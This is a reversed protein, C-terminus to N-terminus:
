NARVYIYKSYWEVVEQLLAREVRNVISALIVSGGSSGLCEREERLFVAMTQFREIRRDLDLIPVLSATGAAMIPFVLALFRAALETKPHQALWNLELSLYLLSMLLAAGSFAFFLGELVKLKWKAGAEKSEYFRIQVDIRTRAYEQAFAEPSMRNAASAQLHLVDLSQILPELEPLVLARFYGPPAQFGRLALISRCMEATMRATAWRRQPMFKMICIPLSFGAFLIIIKVGTLWPKHVGYTISYGVILTAFVHAAVVLGASYQFLNKFQRSVSSAQRKLADVAPLYVDAKPHEDLEIELLPALNKRGPTTRLTGAPTETVAMDGTLAIEFTRTGLFRAFQLTERTGGPRAESAPDFAAILVDCANAIEYGCESFRVRREQAVSAVRIEIVNAGGLLAQSRALSKPPDFDKANFFMDSTQPLFVKHPLNRAAIAEAFLTDSGEALSSLAVLSHQPLTEGQLKDLIQGLREGLLKERRAAAGPAASDTLKRAGVFGIVTFRPFLTRTPM